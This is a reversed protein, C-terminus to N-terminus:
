FLHLMLVCTLKLKQSVSAEKQVGFRPERPLKWEGRVM